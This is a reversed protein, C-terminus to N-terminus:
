SDSLSYEIYDVQADMRVQEKAKSGRLDENTEQIKRRVRGISEQSPLRKDRMAECVPSWPNVGYCKQWVELTLERDDDRTRPVAILIQRVKAELTNLRGM